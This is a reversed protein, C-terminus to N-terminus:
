NSLENAITRRTRSRLLDFWHQVSRRNASCISGISSVAVITETFLRFVVHGKLRDGM